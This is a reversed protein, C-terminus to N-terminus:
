ESPLNARIANMRTFFGAVSGLEAEPTAALFDELERNIGAYLAKVKRLKRPNVRVLISRRDAPNPGRQVLGAKRLRDLM